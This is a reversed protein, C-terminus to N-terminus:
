SALFNHCQVICDTPGHSPLVPTPRMATCFSIPLQFLILIGSNAERISRALRPAVIHKKIYSESFQASELLVPGLSKSGGPNNMITIADPGNLETGQYKPRTFKIESHAPISLAM